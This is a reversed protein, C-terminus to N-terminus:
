FDESNSLWPAVRFMVGKAGKADPLVPTYPWPSVRAILVGAQPKWFETKYVHM